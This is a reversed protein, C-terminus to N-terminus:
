DDDRIMVAIRQYIDLDTQSGRGVLELTFTEVLESDTDQVLPILIRASRQGRDFNVTMVGPPFYDEGAKATGDRVVYSVTVPENDPQYRMVDIQVAAEVERVSIEDVAFAITNQPLSAEFRRRDDDELRLRILAFESEEDDIDRIRIMVEDDQERQQDSPMSITIRVRSQGAAFSLVGGNPIEYQGTGWVPDEDEVEVEELQVSYSQLINNM